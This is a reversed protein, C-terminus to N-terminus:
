DLVLSEYHLYKGSLEGICPELDNNHAISIPGYRFQVRVRRPELRNDGVDPKAFPRVSPIDSAAGAFENGIHGNDIYGAVASM